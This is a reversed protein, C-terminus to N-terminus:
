IKVDFEMTVNVMVMAIIEMLYNTRVITRTESAGVAMPVLL